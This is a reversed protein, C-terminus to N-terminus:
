VGEGRMLLCWETKCLEERSECYGTVYRGKGSTVHEVMQRWTGGLMGGDDSLM